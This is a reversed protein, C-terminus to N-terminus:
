QSSVPLTARKLHLIVRTGCPKGEPSTLDEFVVPDLDEVKNYDKLRKRTIDVAMPNHMTEAQKNRVTTAERGVGNDTITCIMWEKRTRIDIHIEKHGEKKSLGHWIANEVFPQLTLPPIKEQVPDIEPAIKLNYSLAMDLRLTELSIYHELTKLERELSIQHKDSQELVQRLLRSFTGVYTVAEDSRGTAILSQISNLANYIFHPNMQAKLATMELELMQSKLHEAKRIGAIRYRVIATVIGVALLIAILRFWWEEWFPPNITFSFAAPHSWSSNVTKCRVEFHYSGPKLKAYLVFNKPTSGSWNSDIEIIRYSYEIKSSTNLAVGTFSFQLTNSDYPLDVNLPQQWYGRLSDSFPRWDLPRLNVDVSEIVVKPSHESLRYASPEFVFVDDSCGLWIRGDSATTLRANQPQDLKLSVYDHVQFIQAEKKTKRVIISLGKLSTAWVNGAHDFCIDQVADDSLGNDVSLNLDLEPMGSSNWVFHRLGGGFRYIWVGGEEDEKYVPNFSGDAFGLQRNVTLLTGDPKLLMIGKESTNMLLSNNAFSQVKRHFLFPQESLVPKPPAHTTLSFAKLTDQGLFLTNSNANYAINHLDTRPLILSSYDRLINRDLCFLSGSRNALWLRSQKDSIFYDPFDDQLDPRIYRFQFEAKRAISRDFSIIGNLSSFAFIRGDATSTINRIQTILPNSLRTYHQVPGAGISMLGEGTAAWINHSKDEFAGSFLPVQLYISDAFIQHNGPETFYIRNSGSKYLWSRKKSDQFYWYWGPGLDSKGFLKQFSHPETQKFVGDHNVVYVTDGFVRMQSFYMRSKEIPPHQWLTDLDGSNDEFVISTAFNYYTGKKTEVVNLCLQKEYGKLIAQKAWASGTFVFTGSDTLAWLTGDKLQIIGSNFIGQRGGMFPYSVFQNGILEQVNNLNCVWLRHQRDEMCYNVYLSSLGHRIGYNVFQKGDFRSLGATTGVWLFGRSDESINLIYLEPLGNEINYTKTFVKPKDFQGLCHIALNAFCCALMLRILNVM